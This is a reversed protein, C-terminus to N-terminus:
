LWRRKEVAQISLFVFVVVVTIYYVIATVDFIGLAFNTFRDFMALARMMNPFAGELASRKFIFVALLVIELVAGASISAYLDHTMSYVILAIVLILASFCLLSGIATSPIMSALSSMLYIVLLAAFSIVAAILQSETLASMFMGVAILAAGLLIFGLFASYITLFPVEGFASLIIPYLMMVGTPILFVTFMALYKGLVVESVTMPLSYLLQDTKSHREEALSRMTLIPVCLLLVFSLSALVFEFDPSMGKFCNAVTYIGAMVLVFAIFVYGTMNSFFSRLEKKYVATM